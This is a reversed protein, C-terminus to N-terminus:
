SATAPESWGQAASGDSFHKKVVPEGSAPALTAHIESGATGPRFFTAGPRISLHQAHVVPLGRSRVADLVLRANAAAAKTGELPLAGGPFDDDQPDVLLLAPM